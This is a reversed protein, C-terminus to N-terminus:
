LVQSSCVTTARTKRKTSKPNRAQEMARRSVKKSLPKCVQKTLIILILNNIAVIFGVTNSM